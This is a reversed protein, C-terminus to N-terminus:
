WHEIWIACAEGVFRLCFIRRNGDACAANCRRGSVSREAAAFHALPLNEVRGNPYRYSVAFGDEGYEPGEERYQTPGVSVALPWRRQAAGDLSPDPHSEWRFGSADMTKM